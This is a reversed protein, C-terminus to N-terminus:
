AKLRNLVEHCTPCTTLIEGDVLDVPYPGEHEHNEDM